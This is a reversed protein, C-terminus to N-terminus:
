RISCAPWGPATRRRGLQDHRQETRHGARAPVQQGVPLDLPRVLRRHERHHLRSAGHRGEPRAGGVAAVDDPGHLRVQGDAEQQGLAGGARPQGPRLGPPRQGHVARAVARALRQPRRSLGKLDMAFEFPKQAMWVPDNAQESFIVDPWGNGTRNWLQIKTQLTTAGNGDGDYTVINVQVNPHTKAYPKAVPLRVADVWVTISGSPGSAAGGTSAASLAVVVAVIPLLFMLWRRNLKM